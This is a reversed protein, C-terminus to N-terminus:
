CLNLRRSQDSNWLHNPDMEERIERWTDIQPYMISVNEPRMRSDKILYIRGGAETIWEDFVNLLTELGPFMAPFDMALTWGSIPFSLAAQNANGFRKLVALFSSAGIKELEKLIRILINHQQYPVAFQYQLFGDEGYIRNWNKLGDLPHM